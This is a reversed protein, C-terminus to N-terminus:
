DLHLRRKLNELLINVQQKTEEKTGSSDIIFDAKKMREERPM